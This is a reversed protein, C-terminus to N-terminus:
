LLISYAVILPIKKTPRPTNTVPLSKSNPRRCNNILLLFTHCDMFRVLANRDTLWLLMGCDSAQEWGFKGQYQRVVHDVLIDQSNSHVAWAIERWPIRHEQPEHRSRVARQRFCFYHRKGNDDVARRLKHTAALCTISEALQLQEIRTINPLEINALRENLTLANQENFDQDEADNEDKLQDPSVSAAASEDYFTELPRSLYSDMEDGPAHYKTTEFLSIMISSASDLKGALTSQAIFDPHYVPLSANLTSIVDLMGLPKGEDEALHSDAIMKDSVSAADSCIFIQNGAGVMLNGKSLWGFDGIPHSTLDKTNVERLALWSSTNHMFRYRMQGLITVKYSSGVALLSRSDTTYAWNLNQIPDVPDFSRECELHSSRADWITLSTKLADVLAVKATSSGSLLAANEVNTKMEATKVFGAYKQKRCIRLALSYTIGLASHGVLCQRVALPCDPESGLCETVMPKIGHLSMLSEETDIAFSCFHQLFHDSKTQDLPKIEGSMPMQCSWLSGNNNVDIAAIYYQSNGRSPDPLSLLFGEARGVESPTRALVTASADRTDWLALESKSLTVVFDGSDLICSDIIKEDFSVSSQRELLSQGAHLERRWVLMNNDDSKSLLSRGDHDRVLKHIPSQHGTWESRLQIRDSRPLPDFLQEIQTERWSIRGDFHHILLSLSPFIDNTLFCQFTVNSDMQWKQNPKFHLHFDQVHAVNFVDSEKRAKCGVNQLGWASMNGFRDLVVCIDPTMKAIEALHDRAHSEGEVRDDGGVLAQHSARSFDDQQIFFVFREMNQDALGLQRPQLCEQMDLQAWLQMHSIGQPDSAAWIRIKEDACVSYLVDDVVQEYHHHEHQPPQRWQITTVATPHSLYTFDFRTDDPDSSQRRWIKINHDHWGYSAVLNANPSFLAGRVPKPLDQKWIERDSGSTQYLKLSSTGVLLEEESGWSLSATQNDSQPLVLTRSLTWQTDTLM